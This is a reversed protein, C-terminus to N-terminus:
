DETNNTYNNFTAIQLLAIFNESITKITDDPELKHAIAYECIIDLLYSMLEQDNKARPEYCRSYEECKNVVCLNCITSSKNYARCKVM